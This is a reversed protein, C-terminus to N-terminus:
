ASLFQQKWHEITNWPLTINLSRDDAYKAVSEVDTSTSIPIGFDRGMEIARNDIAIIRAYQGKQLARIGAHLRTGVYDCGGILIEDFAKLTPPLVTFGDLGLEERAYEYDYLGQPWFYREPYIARLSNLLQLDRTKDKRYATITTVVADNKKSATLNLKGCDILWLTPCATNVANKIGAEQLRALTYNDRVSHIGTRGLATKLLLKSYRTLATDYNRWGVGLLFANTLYAADLLTIKWQRHARMDSALLNTGGILALKSQKMLKRARRGGYLHTPLSVIHANPFLQCAIRRVADMIIEDGINTTAVSTDFLLIPNM